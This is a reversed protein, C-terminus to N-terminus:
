KAGNPNRLSTLQIDLNLKAAGLEYDCMQIM